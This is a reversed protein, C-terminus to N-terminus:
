QRVVRGPNCEPRRLDGAIQRMMGPNRGARRTGGPLEIMVTMTAPAAMASPHVASAAQRLAFEVGGSNRASRTTCVRSRGFSRRRHAWSIPPGRLSCPIPSTVPPRLDVCPGARGSAQRGAVTVRTVGAPAGQQIRASVPSQPRRVSDAPKWPRGRRTSATRRVNDAAYSPLGHAHCQASDTRHHAGRGSQEQQSRGDGHTEDPAEGPAELDGGPGVLAEDLEEGLGADLDRAQGHADADGVRSPKTWTM